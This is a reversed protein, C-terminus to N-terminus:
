LSISLLIQSRTNRLKGEPTLEYEFSDCLEKVDQQNEPFWYEFDHAPMSQSKQLYAILRKWSEKQHPYFRDIESLMDIQAVFKNWDASSQEESGDCRHFLPRGARTQPICSPMSLLIYWPEGLETFSYLQSRIATGTPFSTDNTKSILFQHATTIDKVRDLHPTLWGKFDLTNELLEVEPSPTYAESVM